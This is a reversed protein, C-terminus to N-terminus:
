PFVTETWQLPNVATGMIRLDWHLHPGTSLGTSGGAAITQGPTVVDGESVFIDSLHFYATMVGLGHNIVVVRGRLELNGTYVVVGDAPALIPTGIPGAFDVGTHFIDFPGGNYSRSNGYPSTVITNTVPVQFLGDWLQEPEYRTYITDLFADENQRISPELLPAQDAPVNIIETGFDAPQLTVPQRLPAWGSTGDGSLELLYDGPETFADFGILAVYGAEHPSFLLTQGALQGEPQGEAVNEVYISLSQGPRVPLPRVVVDVWSGPLERYVQEGVPIRLRQGPYLYTPYDLGNARAIQLPSLGHQAAITLLTDGAQVLHPLGTPPPLPTTSGTRSIVTVRQGLPLRYHRNIAQNVALLEDVNTNYSRAITPLTDGFVATHVAFVAEGEGGPIILEQGVWLIAEESLGNLVLLDAVTVGYQEAIYTLNEGEQVTHVLPIPAEDQALVPLALVVSAALVTVLLLYILWSFQKTLQTM